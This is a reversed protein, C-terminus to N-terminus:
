FPSRINALAATLEEIAERIQDANPPPPGLQAEAEELVTSLDAIHNEVFRTARSAVYRYYNPVFERFMDGVPRLTGTLDAILDAAAQMNAVNQRIIPLARPHNIYNFVAIVEGLSHRVETLAISNWPSLEILHRLRDLEVPNVPANDPLKIDFLRGKM